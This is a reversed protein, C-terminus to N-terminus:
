GSLIRFHDLLGFQAAFYQDRPKVRRSWSVKDDSFWTRVLTDIGSSQREKCIFNSLEESIETYNLWYIRRIM